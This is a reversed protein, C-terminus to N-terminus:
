PVSITEVSALLVMCFGADRRRVCSPVGATEEAVAQAVKRLRAPAFTHTAFLATSNGATRPTQSRFCQKNYYTQSVM